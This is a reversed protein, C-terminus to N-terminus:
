IVVNQAGDLIVKVSDEVNQTIKLIEATAMRAEEQTLIDLRKLVDEIDNRGFLKKVYKEVHVHALLSLDIHILESARKQTIEKTAIALASLVEIMIKVIIDMMATTPRVETYSDLRRFFQEIRGFLDILVDQSADVDKAAQFVPTV